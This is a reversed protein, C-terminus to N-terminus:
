MVIIKENRMCIVHGLCVFCVGQDSDALSSYRGLSRRKMVHGLWLLIKYPTFNYLEDICLEKM